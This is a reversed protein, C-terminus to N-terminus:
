KAAAPAVLGAMVQRVSEALADRAPQRFRAITEPPYYEWATDRPIDGPLPARVTGEGQALLKGTHADYLYGRCYALMTLPEVQTDVVGFFTGRRYSHISVGAALGRSAEAGHPSILLLYDYGATDGRFGPFFAPTHGRYLGQLGTFLTRSDFGVAGVRAGPLAAAVSDREVETLGWEPLQVRAYNSNNGYALDNYTRIVSNGCTAAVGVSAIRSAPVPANLTVCGSLGFAAVVSALIRMM